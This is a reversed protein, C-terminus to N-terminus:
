EEIFHSVRKKISERKSRCLVEFGLCPKIRFAVDNYPFEVRGEDVTGPLRLARHRLL